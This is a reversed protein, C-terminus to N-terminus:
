EYGSGHEEGVSIAYSKEKEPLECIMTGDALIRVEGDQAYCDRLKGDKWASYLAAMVTSKISAERLLQEYHRRIKEIEQRCCEEQERLKRSLAENERRLEELVEDARRSALMSAILIGLAAVAFIMVIILAFTGLDMGIM